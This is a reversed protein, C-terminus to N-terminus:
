LLLLLILSSLSSSIDPSDDDESSFSTKRGRIFCYSFSLFSFYLFLSLFNFFFFCIPSFISSLPICVPLSYGFRMREGTPLRITSFWACRTQTEKRKEIKNKRIRERTKERDKEFERESGM